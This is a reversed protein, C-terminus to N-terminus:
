VFINFGQLCIQFQLYQYNNKSTRAKADKQTNRTKWKFSLSKENRLLINKMKTCFTGWLLSLSPGCRYIKLTAFTIIVRVRINLIYWETAKKFDLLFIRSYLMNSLWHKIHLNCFKNSFLKCLTKCIRLFRRSKCGSELPFRALAIVHQLLSLPKLYVKKPFVLYRVKSNHLPALVAEFFFSSFNKEFFKSTEFLGWLKAFM